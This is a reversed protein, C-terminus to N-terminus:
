PALSGGCAQEAHQVLERVAAPDCNEGRSKLFARAERTIAEPSANSWRFEGSVPCDTLVYWWYRGRGQIARYHLRANEAFEDAVDNDTTV